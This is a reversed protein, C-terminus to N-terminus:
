AKAAYRLAFVATIFDVGVLPWNIDYLTLSIYVALVVTVACFGLSIKIYKNAKIEAESLGRFRRINPTTKINM